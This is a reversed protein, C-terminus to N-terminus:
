KYVNKKRTVLILGFILGFCLRLWVLGERKQGLSMLDDAEFSGM